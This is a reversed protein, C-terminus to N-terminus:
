LLHMGLLEIVIGDDMGEAGQQVIESADDAVGTATRAEPRLRGSECLGGRGVGLLLSGEVQELGDAQLCLWWVWDSSMCQFICCFM